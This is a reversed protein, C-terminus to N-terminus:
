GPVQFRQCSHISPDVVNTARDQPLNTNWFVQTFPVKISFEFDRMKRSRTMTHSVSMRQDLYERREFDVSVSSARGLYPWWTKDNPNFGNSLHDQADRGSFDLASAEVVSRDVDGLKMPDRVGPRTSSIAPKMIM